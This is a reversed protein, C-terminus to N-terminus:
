TSSTVFLSGDLLKDARNTACIEAKWCTRVSTWKDEEGQYSSCAHLEWVAEARMQISAHCHVYILGLQTILLPRTWDLSTHGSSVDGPTSLWSEHCRHFHTLRYGRGASLYAWSRACRLSPPHLLRIRRVHRRGSFRRPGVLCGPWLGALWASSRVRAANDIWHSSPSESDTVRDTAM